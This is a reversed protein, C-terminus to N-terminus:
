PREKLLQARAEATYAREAEDSAGTEMFLYPTILNAISEANEPFHCVDSFLILLAKNLTEDLGAIQDALISGLKQIEDTTLPRTKPTKKSM